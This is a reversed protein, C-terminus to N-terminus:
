GPIPSVLTLQADADLNGSAGVDDAQITVTQVGNTPASATIVHYGNGNRAQMETNLPIPQSGKFIAKGTAYTAAKRIVGEANATDIITQDDSRPSPVVQDAIWTQHDYVDRVAGSFAINIAREVGVPPLQEDLEIEIDQEGTKIIQRLSQVNFPM